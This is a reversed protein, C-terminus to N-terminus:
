LIDSEIKGPSKGEDEKKDQVIAPIQATFILGSAAAHEAAKITHETLIMEVGAAKLELAIQQAIEQKKGALVDRIYISIIRGPFQKVVEQYIGPDQEGSDGVLVFNLHPYTDLIQKIATFKHNMYDGSMFSESQLGFDRLLLPGQPIDNHDMFDILLDYLNWPSSSVYFFPNNRKGNRGLQMSRYFASVGAFPLRTRANGFLVTKGMAWINGVGTRIITDDIDSIIGYEADAPPIMMEGNVANPTFPVPAAILHLPLTLYLEETIIPTVPTFNFVFYGEKDTTVQQQENPLTLQLTAGPVEDSEFRKYMNLLNTFLSDGDKATSIKKDELVRGRVYVNNPTGYTRFPMVQLTDTIGLRQRLRYMQKDALDDLELATNLLKKKWSQM